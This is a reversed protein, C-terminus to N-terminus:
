IIETIHINKKKDLNILKNINIKSKKEIDTTDIKCKLENILVNIIDNLNSITENINNNNVNNTKPTTNNNKVISSDILVYDKIFAFLKSNMENCCKVLNKPKIIDTLDKLPSPHFCRFLNNLIALYHYDEM